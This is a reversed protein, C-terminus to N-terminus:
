NLKQDYDCDDADQDRQQQRRHLRRPLGGSPHLALVVEFLEGQAAEIVLVSVAKKGGAAPAGM